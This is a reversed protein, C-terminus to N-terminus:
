FLLNDDFLPTKNFDFLFFFFLLFVKTFTKTDKNLHRKRLGYKVTLFSDPSVIEALSLPRSLLDESVMRGIM